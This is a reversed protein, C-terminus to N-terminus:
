LGPNLPHVLLLIVLATLLAAWVSANIVVARRAREKEFWTRPRIGLLVFTFQAALNVCVVNVALLLLAGMAYDWNGAGLLLGLTAAPPMLAVAVMVGVLAASVGVTLSLTAAAGSALAIAIGGFGVSTRKMLENSQLQETWILGILVCILITLSVGLANAAIARGMLKFDGLAGGLAFALNPGLLPAIVMAGIIVALNDEALGFAAVLTSAIVFFLFSRDIETNRAVDNYLEERTESEWARLRKSSYQNNQSLPISAEVPVVTIRWNESGALASQIKDLIDQRGSRGVLVHVISRTEEAEKPYFQYDLVGASACVKRISETRDESFHIIFLRETM